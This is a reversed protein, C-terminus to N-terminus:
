ITNTVLVAGRHTFENSECVMCNKIKPHNFDFRACALAISMPISAAGVFGFTFSLDLKEPYKRPKLTPRDIEGHQFAVRQQESLKNPYLDCLLQHYELLSQRELGPSVVMTDINDLALNSQSIVEKIAKAQGTYKVIARKGANPEEQQSISKIYGLAYIEDKNTNEPASELVLFAAGEGTVIGGQTQETQVRQKKSLQFNTYNDLLSDVGGFIITQSTNEHLHECIRSLQHTVGLTYDGFKIKIKSVDIYDELPSDEGLLLERWQDLDVNEGRGDSLDPLVIYIIYKQENIEEDDIFEDDTELEMMGYYNLSELAQSLAITMNALMRQNPDECGTLIKMPCSMVNEFVDEDNVSPVQIDPDPSSFSMNTAVAGFMAVPTNGSVCSLGIGTIKINQQTTM